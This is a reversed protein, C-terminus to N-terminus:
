TQELNTPARKKVETFIFPTSEVAADEVEDDEEPDQYEDGSDASM